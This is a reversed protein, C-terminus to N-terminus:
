FYTTLLLYYTTLLSYYTTLLLYHTTLLSYYTTVLLYHTTLLLGQSARTPPNGTPTRRASNSCVSASRKRRPARAQALRDMRTVVLSELQRGVRKQRVKEQRARRRERQGPDRHIPSNPDLFSNADLSSEPAVKM